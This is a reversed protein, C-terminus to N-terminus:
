TERRRLRPLTAVIAEFSTFRNLEATDIVVRFEAEVEHLLRLVALSNWAGLRSIAANAIEGDSLDPFVTRFCRRLRRERAQAEVDSIRHGRSM